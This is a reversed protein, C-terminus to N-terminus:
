RVSQLTGVHLEDDLEELHEHITDTLSRAVDDLEASMAAVIEEIGVRSARTPATAFTQAL